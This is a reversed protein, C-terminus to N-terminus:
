SGINKIADFEAAYDTLLGREFEDRLPEFIAQVEAEYCDLDALAVAKEEAQLERLADVDLDPLSAIDFSEGSVLAQGEEPTLNDIAASMPATVVELRDSIEGEPDDLDSYNPYGAESMCRTWADVADIMDRRDYIAAEGEGYIDGFDSLGEIADQGGTEILARGICGQEELPRSGFGGGTAAGLETSGSLTEIWIERENEGLSFLIAANPNSTQDQAISDFSTSIGFGYELTWERLTLENQRQQVENQQAAGSVAFEFGQEAMCVVIVEEVQRTYEAIAEDFGGDFFAGIPSSESMPTAGGDVAASTSDGSSGASDASGNSETESGGDAADGSSTESGAGAAGTAVQGDSSGGACSAAMLTAVLLAVFLRRNM